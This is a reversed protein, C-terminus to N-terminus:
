HRHESNDLGPKGGEEGEQSETKIQKTYLHPNVRRDVKLLLAFFGVLNENEGSHQTKKTLKNEKSM